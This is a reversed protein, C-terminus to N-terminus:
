SKSLLEGVIRDVESVMYLPLSLLQFSDDGMAVTTTSPLNTDFRIAHTYEKSRCIEILSRLRGSAGAKVELPIITKGTSWLFDVEANESKGERLWYHLSKRSGPESATLEQAVFQEALAGENVFEITDPAAIDRTSLGTASCLLGVDLFFLKRVDPDSEAGLPIGNGSSHTAQTLVGADLLLNLAKRVDRSPHGPSLTSYKIKKAIQIPSRDFVDRVISRIHATAPYKQLDDRYSTIIDRQLTTAESIGELKSALVAEPMGGVLFFERLAALLRTHEPQSPSHTTWPSAHEIAQKLDSLGKAILFEKFTLPAVHLYEVRGVPMAFEADNLTFELVSGAAVVALQPLKEYFYRLMRLCSPIIQVEDLFLFYAEPKERFDVGSIRVFAALTEEFHGSDIPIRLHSRHDELNIEVLKLKSNQAFTRILTSKGVQRAGRIVLPKRRQRGLWTSLMQEQIRTIYPPQM